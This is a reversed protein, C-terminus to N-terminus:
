EGSNVISSDAKWVHGAWELRTGKVFQVVRGKGYLQKIFNNFYNVFYNFM